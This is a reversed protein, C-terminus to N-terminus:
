MMMFRQTCSKLVLSDSTSDTGNTYGARYYEGYGPDVVTTGVVKRKGTNAISNYIYRSMNALDSYDRYLYQSEGMLILRVM